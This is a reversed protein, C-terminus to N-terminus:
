GHGDSFVYQFEGEKINELTTVIYIITEPSRKTVNNFGKQISYLMPSRTGFYFAVYDTFNGNPEINIEKSSRSGILTEDGIGIYSADCDLNNPCTLKGSELIFDFNDIHTIRYLYITDPKAM